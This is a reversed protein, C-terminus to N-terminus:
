KKPEEPNKMPLGSPNNRESVGHLAEPRLCKSVPQATYNQIKNINCCISELVTTCAINQLSYTVRPDIMKVWLYAQLAM